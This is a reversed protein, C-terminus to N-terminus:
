TYSGGGNGNATNNSGTTNSYLAVYGNAANNSGTGNSFLAAYGNATNNSGTTNSLSAMATYISGTQLAGTGM